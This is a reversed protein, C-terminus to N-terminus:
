GRRRALRLGLLTVGAIAAFAAASAAAIVMWLNDSTKPSASNEAQQASNRDTKKEASDRTVAAEPAETKTLGDDAAKVPTPGPENAPRAQSSDSEMPNITKRTTKPPSVADGAQRDQHRDAPEDASNSTGAEPTRDETLNKEAPTTMDHTSQDPGTAKDVAQPSKTMPAPGPGNNAKPNAKEPTAAAIDPSPTM